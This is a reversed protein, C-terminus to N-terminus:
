TFWSALQPAKAVVARSLGSCDFVAMIPNEQYPRAEVTLAGAKAIDRILSRADGLYYTGTNDTLPGWQQRVPRGSGVRVNVALDDDSFYAGWAIFVEIQVRSSSFFGKPKDSEEGVQRLVITPPDGFQNVGRGAPSTVLFVVSDDMPNRDIEVVWNSANAGDALPADGSGHGAPGEIAIPARLAALQSELSAVSQRLETVIRMFETRLEEFRRNLTVLSQEAANRSEGGTGADGDSLSDMTLAGWPGDRSQAVKDSASLKGNRIGAEIQTISFPGHVAGNRKIFYSTM